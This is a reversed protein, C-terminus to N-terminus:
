QEVEKNLTKQGGYVNLLCLVSKDLQVCSNIYKFLEIKIIKM